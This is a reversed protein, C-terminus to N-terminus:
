SFIYMKSLILPLYRRTFVIAWGSPQGMLYKIFALQKRGKKSGAKYQSQGQGLKSLAWCMPLAGAGAQVQLLILLVEWVLLKWLLGPDWHWTGICCCRVWFFYQVSIFSDPFHYFAHPSVLTPPCCITSALLSEETLAWPSPLRRSSPQSRVQSRPVSGTIGPSEQCALSKSELKLWTM